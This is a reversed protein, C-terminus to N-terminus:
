GEVESLFSVSAALYANGGIQMPYPSTASVFQFDQGQVQMVQYLLTELTEYSGGAEIRNAILVVEIAATGICHTRPILWPIGWAVYICPPTVSDPIDASVTVDAAVLPVIAAAMAQRTATLTM